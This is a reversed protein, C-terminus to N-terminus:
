YVAVSTQHQQLHVAIHHKYRNTSVTSLIRYIHFLDSKLIVSVCAAPNDKKYFYEVGIKRDHSQM